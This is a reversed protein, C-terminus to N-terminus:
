ELLDGATGVWGVSALEVTARTGMSPFLAWRNAANRRFVGIQATKPDILVYAHATRPDPSPSRGTRVAPKQGGGVASRIL